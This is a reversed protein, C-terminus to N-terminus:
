NQTHVFAQLTSIREIYAISARFKALVHVLYHEISFLQLYINCDCDHYGYGYSQSLIVEVRLTAKKQASLNRGYWALHMVKLWVKAMLDTVHVLMNQGDIGGLLNM